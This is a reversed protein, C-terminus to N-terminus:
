RHFGGVTGERAQNGTIRQLQHAPVLLERLLAKLGAEAALVAQPIQM